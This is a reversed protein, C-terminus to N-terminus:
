LQVINGTFTHGFVLEKHPTLPKPSKTNEVTVTSANL